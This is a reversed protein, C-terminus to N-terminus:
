EPQYELSGKGYLSLDKIRFNIKEFSTEKINKETEEPVKLLFKHQLRHIYTNKWTSKMNFSHQTKCSASDELKSLGGM